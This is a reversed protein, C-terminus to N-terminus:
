TTNRIGSTGHVYLSDTIELQITGSSTHQAISKRTGAEEEM